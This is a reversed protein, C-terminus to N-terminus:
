RLGRSRRHRHHSQSVTEEPTLLRELSGVTVLTRRGVHVTELKRERILKWVTTNGLGSVKRVTDVTVTLPKVGSPAIATDISM